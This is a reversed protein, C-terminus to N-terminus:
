KDTQISIENKGSKIKINVDKMKKFEKEISDRIREADKESYKKGNIIASDGGIKRYEFTKGNITIKSKEISFDDKDDYEDDDIGDGDLDGNFHINKSMPIVVGTEPIVLEYDVHYDRFRHEYPYKVYNPLLIKNGSIEVPVTLKIPINYGDARKKIILYPTKLNPKRTIDVEAYDETYVTKKDSYTDNDYAKFNEPITIQKLDVFLSDSNTNIILEETEEKSGNLFMEKKAANAGFYVGLAIIIIFLGFLVWGVNRLKTKPSFIKISASGFIITPILCGILMIIVLIKYMGNDDFLFHLENAGPFDPTIGFLILIAFIGVFSSIAMIAFIGGIIYKIVNGIESGTKQIYPKSENLMQGAKKASDNAFQVIKGSEEKITDFNVPKGKMKLFDSASTAVPLVAWLIIYILIIIGASVGNIIGPIVLIVWIIRMWSVDMGVYHALGSCVGAIKANELDRFLQKKENSNQASNKRKKSNTESYYTEEQEEIDEPTGLQSIVKEVDENNIVERKGLIDRFIEVIRIEIDHMVEDAEDAELSNRLAALYDSLKIYAHEEIIFSFGALAISLTKNM